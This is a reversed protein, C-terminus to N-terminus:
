NNPKRWEKVIADAPQYQDGQKYESNIVIPGTDGKAIQGIFSGMTSLHDQPRYKIKGWPM